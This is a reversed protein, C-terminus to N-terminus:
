HKEALSDLRYYRWFTGDDVAITRVNEELWKMIWSDSNVKLEGYWCQVAVVDPYKEPYMEWYKLLTEDFTPTCITSPASVGTDEYLYGLSSVGGQEVILINDGPQVFHSWEEHSVNRVYAGLYDTVIGMAPGSRIVGGLQLPGPFGSYTKFTVGRQFVLLLCFLFIVDYKIVRHTEKNRFINSDFVAEKPLLRRLPIFSVMVALILYMVVSALDLNTLLGTAVFSGLSIIMGACVMRRESADCGKILAIGSVVLLPFLAIYGMREAFFVTKIVFAVFLVLSFLLLFHKKETVKELLLSLLFAIVFSGLVWVMSVLICAFYFNWDAKGAEQHSSDGAIISHVSQLFAHFGGLRIVFYGVYACGQVLCAGSFLLIDKWKKESYIWLLIVVALWVIVCSPYSIVELCLFVSGLLLWRKQMQHELFHVLCLFLLVSFWIQMNSFEPFVIDKPRMALFFISMLRATTLDVKNKMFSYFIWTIAGHILVGMGHLYVIVGTTSGTVALFPKMLFTCLFASTQHPEWMQQLMRDGQLMRYSMAVAYEADIDCDAFISKINVLVAALFLLGIFLNRKNEKASIRQM